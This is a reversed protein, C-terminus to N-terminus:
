AARWWPSIRVTPSCPWDRRRAAKMGKRYLSANMVSKGDESIARCGNEAMGGIDALEEGQQGRTVAGLQIM